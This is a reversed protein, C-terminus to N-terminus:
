LKESIKIAARCGAGIVASLLAYGPAERAGEDVALDRHAMEEERFKSLEAALDPERASLEAIQHAYHEEIVTEVAETCAHAAKDGMLATGAGLAFAAARWVPALATPRVQRETLLRDFRALHQAEQAEMEALQGAIREHGPAGGLVARQGRYIAVAAMEGAHDVRLIEAMRATLSGRGPRPPIPKDSM